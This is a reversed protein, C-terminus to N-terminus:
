AGQGLAETFVGLNNEMIDLYKAGNEVDTKTVSQISDVSLIDINDRGTNSVVAEAIRHDTGELTLVSDLSLENLKQALFDVTKFSAESEASCGMFAAYYDIDYDDVLYRFPFRDAFVVTKIKADELAEEYKEDLEEIKEIYAEANKKYTESNESDVASIKDALYSVLFEANKLSLWIHEDYEAEEETEEEAEMGEKLEEEKARDGLAEMLNVALTDKDESASLADGIWSDSEGGIFAFLDCESISLIDAATPQFSHFDVGTDILMQVDANEAKDGLIEIVWDYVPFITTVIKLNKEKNEEPNTQTSGCASFVSILLLVCLCVSILKKM